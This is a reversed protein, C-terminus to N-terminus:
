RPAEGHMAEDRRERREAESLSRFTTV